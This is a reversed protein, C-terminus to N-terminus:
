FTVLSAYVLFVCCAYSMGRDCFSLLYLHSAVWAWVGNLSSRPAPPVTWPLSMTFHLSGGIRMALGSAMWNTSSRWSRPQERTRRGNIIRLQWSGLQFEFHFSQSMKKLSIFNSNLWLKLIRLKKMLIGSVRTIFFFRQFLEFPISSRFFIWFTHEVKLNNWLSKQNTIPTLSGEM